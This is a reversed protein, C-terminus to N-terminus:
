SSALTKGYERALHLGDKDPNWKNKLPASVVEYGAKELYTAMIDSAEGTWGYCGFTAAKKKKMKLEKLFHLFGAMSSLMDNGVTPSGVVVMKSRFIETAVDNKDTKAINYVKVTVDKDVETIGSAIEDALIRTGEWMTDYVITIQNEQYDDCWALYKEVIQMPNDRWIVGHSTAIIDITLNLAIVQALKRKLLINFPTLINAYYKLSEYDLTCKDSLDNFLGSTAYHQGFADNSFLINDGSLYTAMSDPWHLMTMEVFILQKGNGVDLSDGTKVVKFNWKKHYQGTLSDVAKQTCYIPTDPIFEMLRPLAGSHDVEGHNVVIADISKLDVESMLNTVFQESYPRYVTDILVTKEEKVLYSNYTSGKHTSYDSGHFQRLETDIFGVWDVNNKVKIHM